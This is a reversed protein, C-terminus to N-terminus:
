GQDFWRRAQLNINVDFHMFPRRAGGTTVLTRVQLLLHMGTIYALVASAHPCCTSSAHLATKLARKRYLDSCHMKDAAVGPLGAAM